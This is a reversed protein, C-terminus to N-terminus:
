PVEYKTEKHKDLKYVKKPKPDKLINAWKVYFNMQKESLIDVTIEFEDTWDM